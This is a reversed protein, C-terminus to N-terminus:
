FDVRSYTGSLRTFIAVSLTIISLLSFFSLILGLICLINLNYISDELFPRLCGNINITNEKEDSYLKGCNKTIITKCCTDPVDDLYLLSNNLLKKYILHDPSLRSKWNEYSNVGCCNFKTQLWNFKLTEYKLDNKEEYNNLTNIMSTKIKNNFSDNSNIIILGYLSISLIIFLIVYILLSIALLLQFNNQKALVSGYVKLCFLIFGFALFVSAIMTISFSHFEFKNSQLALYYFGIAVLILSSTFIVFDGSSLITKFSKSKFKEM